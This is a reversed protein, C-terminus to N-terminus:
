SHDGSSENPAAEGHFDIIKWDRGTKEFLWTQVDQVLVKKEKTKKYFGTVVHLFRVRARTRDSFQVTVNAIQSKIDDYYNFLLLAEEKRAAAAESSGADALLVVLDKEEEAQRQRELVRGIAAESLATRASEQLRLAQSNAPDDKLISALAQLCQDYKRSEMLGAAEALRRSLDAERIKQEARALWDKAESRSPDEALIDKALRTTEDFSGREFSQQLAALKSALPDPPDAPPPPAAPTVVHPSTRGEAQAPRSKEFVRFIFVAAAAAGLILLVLGTVLAALRGRGRKEKERDAERLKVTLTSADSKALSDLAAAMGACSQYRDQPNKAMARGVVVDWGAPLGPKLSSPPPAEDHVIKHMVTSLKKGAFPERGTLLVYLLIGLSFIDSRGDAVQGRLQEPSIYGPTGLATGALTLTSAATKAVGFDALHPVGEPDIVVNGPKIDRHVVGNQHAYDVARLLPLMLAGAEEPTFSRGTDMLKQLNQGPVHQMVIYTLDGERGVDYITVINPHNLRGAARGEQMFRKIVEEREAAERVADFHIAKVAVERGIDPDRAKYVIGMAGKGLVDVIEYKGIKKM